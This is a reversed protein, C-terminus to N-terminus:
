FLASVLSEYDFILIMNMIGRKCPAFNDTDLDLDCDPDNDLDCDLLHVQKCPVNM